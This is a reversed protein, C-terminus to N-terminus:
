QRGRAKREQREKDSDIRKQDEPSLTNATSNGTPLSTGGRSTQGQSRGGRHAQNNGRSSGNGSKAIRDLERQHAGKVSTGESQRRVNQSPCGLAPGRPTAANSSAPKQIAGNAGMRKGSGGAGQLMAKPATPIVSKRRREERLENNLDDSNREIFKPGPGADPLDVPSDSVEKTVAHGGLSFPMTVVKSTAPAPAPTSDDEGVSDDSDENVQEGDSEDDGEDDGEDAPMAPAGNLDDRSSLVAPTDIARGASPNASTQRPTSSTPGSSIAPVENSVARSQATHDAPPTANSHAPTDVAGSAGTRSSSRAAALIEAEKLDLKEEVIKQELRQLYLAEPSTASLWPPCYRGNQYEAPNPRAINLHIRRNMKERKKQEGQQYAIMRPDTADHTCAGPTSPWAPKDPEEEDSAEFILSDNRSDYEGPNFFHKPTPQGSRDLTPKAPVSAWPQEATAPISEGHHMHEDPVTRPQSAHGATAGGAFPPPSAQFASPPHAPKHQQAPVPTMPAPDLSLWPQGDVTSSENSVSSGRSSSMPPSPHGSLQESLPSPSRGTQATSAPTRLLAPSHSAKSAATTEKAQALEERLARVQEKLEVNEKKVDGEQWSIEVEHLEDRVTIDKKLDSKEKELGSILAEKSQIATDRDSKEQVLDSNDDLLMSIRAEQFEWVANARDLLADYNGALEGHEGRLVSIEHEKEKTLTENKEELKGIEAECHERV